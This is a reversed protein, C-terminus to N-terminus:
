SAARNCCPVAVEHVGAVNDGVGPDVVDLRSLENSGVMCVAEVLTRLM